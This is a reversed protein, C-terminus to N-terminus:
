RFIPRSSSASDSVCRATAMRVTFSYNQIQAVGQAKVKAHFTRSKDTTPIKRGEADGHKLRASM